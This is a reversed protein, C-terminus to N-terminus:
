TNISHESVGAKQIQMNHSIIQRLCIVFLLVSFLIHWILSLTGLFYSKFLAATEGSIIFTCSM